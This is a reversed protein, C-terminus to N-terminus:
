SIALQGGFRWLFHGLKSRLESLATDANVVLCYGFEANGLAIEYSKKLCDNILKQKDSLSVTGTDLTPIQFKPYKAFLLEAIEEVTAIFSSCNYRLFIHARAVDDVHVMHIRSAGFPNKEGFLFALSTYVSGPLKPCIFPGLVFTPILTVVDLGHHEGFELIAKEALTKSISYSWAFPKLDRLLNEDSWYIEDIVEEEKSELDIPTTTHLVGICGEIAERFSEPNSLDVNFVKLKKSAGPLNTLFSVDRKRGALYMLVNNCLIPSINDMMTLINKDNEEQIYIAEYKVNTNLKYKEFEANGLSIEYSKKLCDDILKQKDSLSVTGTSIINDLDLSLLQRGSSVLSKHLEELSAIGSTEISVLNSTNLIVLRVISETNDELNAQTRGPHDM